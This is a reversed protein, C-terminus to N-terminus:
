SLLGPFADQVINKTIGKPPVKNIMNVVAKADEPHIGEVIGFFIKERKYAPLSDGDKFGKVFYKFKANERLLNAPHHVDSSPTYPVEGKPLNWQISDDFTGKLIDKLAWTENEKLVKVKDEKKGKSALELVEYVMKM